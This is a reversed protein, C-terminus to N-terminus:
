LIARSPWLVRCASSLKCVHLANPTIHYTPYPPTLYPDRVAPMLVGVLLQYVAIMSQALPNNQFLLESIYAANPTDKDVLGPLLEGTLCYYGSLATYFVCIFYCGGMKLTQLLGM